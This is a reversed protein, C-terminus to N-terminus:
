DHRLATANHVATGRDAQTRPVLALRFAAVAAELFASPTAISAPLPKPTEIFGLLPLIM